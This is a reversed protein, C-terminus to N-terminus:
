DVNADGEDEDDDKCEKFESMPFVDLRRQRQRGSELEGQVCWIAELERWPELLLMNAYRNVAGSYLLHLVANVGERKVMIKGNRLRMSSPAMRNHDGAIFDPSDPGVNSLPDIEGVTREYAEERKKERNQKIVRYQSAFQLLCMSETADPRGEYQVRVDGSTRQYPKGDRNLFVEGEEHQDQAERWRLNENREVIIEVLPQSKQAKLKPAKSPMTGNLFELVSIERWNEILFFPLGSSGEALGVHERVIEESNFCVEASMKNDCAWLLLPIYPRVKSEGTGRRLTWKARGGTRILLCHYKVVNVDLLVDPELVDALREEMYGTNGYDATIRDFGEQMLTQCIQQIAEYTAVDKSLSEGLEAARMRLLMEDPHIPNDGRSYIDILSLPQLDSGSQHRSAMEAIEEASKMTLNYEEALVMPDISVTPMSARQKLIESTITYLDREGAAIKINIEEYGRSYLFGVVDIKWERQDFQVDLDHHAYLPGLIHRIFM